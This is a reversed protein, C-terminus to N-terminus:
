PDQRDNTDGQRRPHPRPQLGGLACRPCVTPFSAGPGPVYLDSCRWCPLSRAYLDDFRPGGILDIASELNDSFWPSPWGRDISVVVCDEGERVDTVIRPVNASNLTIVDLTQLDRVRVCLRALEAHCRGAEIAHIMEPTLENFRKFERPSRTETNM